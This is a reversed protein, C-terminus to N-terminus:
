YAYGLLVASKALIAVERVIKQPPLGLSAFSRDGWWFAYVLDVEAPDFDVPEVARAVIRFAFRQALRAAFARAIIDFAWGPRDVLLVVRPLDAAADAVRPLSRVV